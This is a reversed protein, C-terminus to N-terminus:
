QKVVKIIRNTEKEVIRLYYIGAAINEPIYMEVNNNFIDSIAIKSIISGQNSYLYIGQLENKDINSIDINLKNSFPNPYVSVNNEVYHQSEITNPTLLYGYAEFEYISFGSNTGSLTCIVKLYRAEIDIEFVDKNGNGFNVNAVTDWEALDPSSLLVYNEAYSNQWKIIVRKVNYFGDLDVMFDENETANSQWRSNRLGDVAYAPMFSNNEISSAYAPKKYAINIKIEEIDDDYIKMSTTTTNNDEVTETITNEYDVQASVEIEGPYQAIYFNKNNVGKDAIIQGMGGVPIAINTDILAIETGDVLVKAKLNDNFPATGQNKINLAFIVSDGPVPFPPYSAISSVHLDPAPSAANVNVTFSLPLNDSAGGVKITYAGTPLIYSDSGEDFIYLDEAKITFSIQKSEGANFSVREFAKLQKEPMSISGQPHTIYVQIVEDGERAGTNSVNVTFNISEGANVDTSIPTVSNYIFSTYSLGHGFAFAPTYNQYDFWRYGGGFDDNFNTNDIPLQSDNVPITVPFKAGPNYDGFIVDTIARGQEQGPYFGYILGKVNHLCQSMSVAGGTEIVVIINPNVSALYNILTQQLGPLEVSGSVRDYTEGEQTYDLGGVFIVKEAYAAKTIADSFGTTDWSNVECGKQHWVKWYGIREELAHKLTTIGSPFVFSSGNINLCGQDANPGILAISGINNRDLPLINDQNKALVLSKVATEYDITKSAQGSVADEPAKPQYDFFGAMLKTRLVNRVAKDVEEEPITGNQVGELLDINYHTSGMCIDTGAHIAEAANHVSGWDSVVFYPFGWSDRLVETNLQHNQSAPQGNVAVYAGMVSFTNAEQITYKYPLGWHEMLMRKSITITDTMRTNQANEGIFSKSSSMGPTEQLGRVTATGIQGVLYPDEGFAEGSRGHRPDNCLYLAPLLRFNIEKANFENGMVKALRYALDRDWTAGVAAPIPFSTALAEPPAPYGTAVPDRYGHPGDASFIGPIGLRPNDDTNMIDCPSLQEVKEQLTMEDLMADIKQEVTIIQSNSFLMILSFIATYIYKTVTM